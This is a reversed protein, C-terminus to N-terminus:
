VVSLVSCASGAGACSQKPSVWLDRPGMWGELNLILPLFPSCRWGWLAATGESVSCCTSPPAGAGARLGSLSFAFPPVQCM